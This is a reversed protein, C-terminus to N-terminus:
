RDSEKRAVEIARDTPQLPHVCEKQGRWIMCCRQHFFVNHILCAGVAEHVIKEGCKACLEGSDFRELVSDDNM